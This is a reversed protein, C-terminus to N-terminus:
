PLSTLRSLLALRLLRARTASPVGITRPGANELPVVVYVAVTGNRVWVTVIAGVILAARTLEIVTACSPPGGTVTALPPTTGSATGGAPPVDSTVTPTM